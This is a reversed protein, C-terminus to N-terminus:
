SSGLCLDCEELISRLKGAFRSVDDATLGANLSVRLRATGEPVTPPRVARADFGAEGLRRAVEVAARSDGIILPVIPSDDADLGLQERLHRALARVRKRRHAEMALLHLAEDLADAAAPPPATSFVFPRAAQILYDIAWHPGCVFAGTVGLAKGASNVSLFVSDACGTEEILGSGSEGYMGVGHAEDIVLAFDHNSRLSAIARLPAIDGDMSFLSETVVFRQGSCPESELLRGLADVDCHPYIVRRAKSLRMGDILSAHNLSDSFVLDGEGLFTSLVGLNAAWGSGFYLAGPTGKFRAFREEILRFAARHGRLLRSGTSGVGLSEVARAFRSRIRPDRAFGLYDNSCLDIGRPEDLSRHLGSADLRDLQARVREELADAPGPTGAASGTARGIRGVSDGTDRLAADGDKGALEPRPMGRSETDDATQRWPFDFESRRPLM